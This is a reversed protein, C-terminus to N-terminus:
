HRHPRPWRSIRGISWSPPFSPHHLTIKVQLTLILTAAEQFTSQSQLPTSSRTSGAARLTSGPTITARFPSFTVPGQLLWPASSPLVFLKFVPCPKNMKDDHRVVFRYLSGPQRPPPTELCRQEKSSLLEGSVATGGTILTVTTQRARASHLPRALPALHALELQFFPIGRETLSATNPM